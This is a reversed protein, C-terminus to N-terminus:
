SVTSVTRNEPATVKRKDDNHVQELFCDYRSSFVEPNEFYPLAGTDFISHRWNPRTEVVAAYPYAAFDGRRGNAMWVPIEIRPYLALIDGAFLDGALFHLPAHEAGPQGATIVDYRWLQDDIRPSGWTRRLFYHIVRPTTLLQFLRRGWGPGTLLRHQWSRSTEIHTDASSPVRSRRFGTPSVLALSRFATSECAARALFECSLSVALADISRGDCEEQIYAVTAHIADTMLRITYPRVTRASFGFGPLELAYVRRTASYREYLPRVEAASAAANVSHIMVMPQGTGCTYLSLQGAKSDFEVRRGFLAHPLKPHSRATTNIRGFEVPTPV